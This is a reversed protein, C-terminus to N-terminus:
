DKKVKLSGKFRAGSAVSIRGATVDGSVFSTERIQVRESATITGTLEGDLIVNRAQVDAEVKAERSITLTSSPLVITGKFRGEITLDEHAEIRGELFVTAGLRSQVGAPAAAPQIAAMPEQKSM